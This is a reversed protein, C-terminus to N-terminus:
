SKSLLRNEEIHRVIINTAGQRQRVFNGAIENLSTRWETDMMLKETMSVLEQKTNYSFGVGSEIMAKAEATRQHNPGFIVTKGYAAPELINHIGAANFGGGVYSITAYRYLKSLMGICDIILVRADKLREHNDAESLLIHQQFMRKIDQIHNQNVEHPAIILKLNLDKGLLEALMEEDEKWTSGAIMTDTEACFTEIAPHHFSLGTIEAVRDYRTDGAVTLPVKMKFKQLIAASPEDQVFLHTYSKLLTRLFSGLPGFFNQKPTFIASILLAPIGRKKLGILYHFWSEYKIFIALEPRVIDLFKRSRIRGDLPLYFIMDAGVYNKRIEYGSPSFFTLLIRHDPFTTKLTELVPKGQEFEGLSSSHMWIIPGQGKEVAAKLREFINKRGEVWLRAKPTWFSAINIGLRYLVLFINYFFLMYKYLPLAVAL